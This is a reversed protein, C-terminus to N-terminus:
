VNDIHTQKGESLNFVNIFFEHIVAMNLSFLNSAFALPFIHSISFIHFDSGRERFNVDIVSIDTMIVM